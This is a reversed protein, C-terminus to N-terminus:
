SKNYFNRIVMFKILSWSKKLTIEVLSNRIKIGKDEGELNEVFCHSELSSVTSTNLARPLITKQIIRQKPIIHQGNVNFFHPQRLIFSLITRM